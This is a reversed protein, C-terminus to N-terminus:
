KVKWIAKEINIIINEAKMENIFKNPLGNYIIKIYINQNDFKIIEYSAVLDLKVLINELSDIKDHQQADVSITLPLKISTNIQNIKKWYDEYNLKLEQLVFFFDKENSLNINDFKKNNIKFYQNLNIKSLIQLKKGNKYIIVIIYDEMDYKKIIKKFDYDEISKSNLSILNLDEIDETPLLYNLLNVRENKKNWSKYFINNHFLFINDHQLDVLVPILILNKKIPISPFINKKNFFFLTNKKNFNVDFNVLYTENIFRENSMNFSDILNKIEMLSTDKIKIKDDSTAIRSIMEEFAKRFGKDIVREKNFNLEFPESIELDIIKFLNANLPTLFIINIFLISSFFFIYLKNFNNLKKNIQM